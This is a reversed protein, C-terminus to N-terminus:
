LGQKKLWDVIKQLEESNCDSKSRNAKACIWAVNGSVYGKTNDVRDLQISNPKHPVFTLDLGLIPCKLDAPILDILEEKTISIDYDHDGRKKHRKKRTVTEACYRSIFVERTMLALDYEANQSCSLIGWVYKDGVMEGKVYPKGTEPNVPKNRPVGELKKKINRRVGKIRKDACDNCQTEYGGAKTKNKRFSSYSLFTGCASCTRGDLTIVRETM